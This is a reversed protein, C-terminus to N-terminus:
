KTQLQKIVILLYKHINIVVTAMEYNNNKTLRLFPQYSRGKSSIHLNRGEKRKETGAGKIRFNKVVNKRNRLMRCVNVRLVIEFTIM